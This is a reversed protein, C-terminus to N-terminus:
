SWSTKEQWSLTNISAFVTIKKGKPPRDMSTIIKLIWEKLVILINNSDVNEIIDILINTDIM